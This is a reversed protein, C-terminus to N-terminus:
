YTIEVSQPNRDLDTVRGHASWAGPHFEIRSIVSVPGKEVSKRGCSPAKREIKSAMSKGLTEEPEGEVVADDSGSRFQARAGLGTWGTPFAPIDM